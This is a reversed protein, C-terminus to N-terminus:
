RVKRRRAVARAGLAYLILIALGALTGYLGKREVETAEWRLQLYHTGPSLEVRVLGTDPDPETAFQRAGDRIRWAPYHFIPLVVATPRDATIRFDMGSEVRLPAECRLGADQCFGPFGKHAYAVYAPKAWNLEYEQVGSYGGASRMSQICQGKDAACRALYDEQLFRERAPGFTYDDQHFEASLPKGDGYAAKVLAGVAFVVSLALSAALLGAWVRRGAGLAHHLALGAAFVGTTYTLSVFRYPLNIQSVPNPFTWIPYSLESAFFVSVAAASLVLLMPAGLRGLTARNRFFYGASVIVLLLAPLAVPWQISFWQTQRTLLTVIPWAFAELRYDGVWSASNMVKLYFLAPYLYAASLLLGLGATLAWSLIAPGPAQREDGMWRSARVLCFASYCILNVLASIIHTGVALAIAVAAWANLGSTRAEPRLLAWLLMGHSLYAAAGWALGHFKYHLMVLFPNLLAVLAILTAVRVSVFRRVAAFIFWAYGANCLIAVWQMAGWNDLGLRTFAAVLYYYLPSYTIFVPEGLGYRGHFIWRPYADGALLNATFEKAWNYHLFFDYNIDAMYSILHPAHMGFACVLILLAALMGGRPRSSSTSYGTVTRM